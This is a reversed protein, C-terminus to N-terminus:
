TWDAWRRRLEGRHLLLWQVAIITLANAIVGEELMAALRDVPVAEVKIDEGEEPLGHVGGAGRSDVRGCYLAVTETIAGPSVLYRAIPVLERVAVGAEERAERRAVNEPTEDGDIMGAVAETQWPKMGALHAGIRFQELLVVADRAPDYPLVAAVHGRHYVERLIPRSLRGDHLRHRLRYNDIRGYGQYALTADIIEIDKADM